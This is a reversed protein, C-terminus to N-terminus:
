TNKYNDPTVIVGVSHASFIVYRDKKHTFGSNGRGQSAGLIINGIALRPDKVEKGVVIIEAYENADESLAEKSTTPALIIGSRKVERLQTLVDHDGLLIKKVDIIKEFIM